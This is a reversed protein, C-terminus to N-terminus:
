RISAGTLNVPSAGANYLEIWDEHKGYDDLDRDLNAASYENIVVQAKLGSFPFLLLCFLALRLLPRLSVQM